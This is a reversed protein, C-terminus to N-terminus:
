TAKTIINIAINPNICDNFIRHVVQEEIMPCPRPDVFLNHNIYGLSSKLLFSRRVQNVNKIFTAAWPIILIFNSQM